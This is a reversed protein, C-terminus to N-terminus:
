VARPVQPVPVLLPRLVPLRLVVVLHPLLDLEQETRSDSLPHYEGTLDKGVSTPDRSLYTFWVPRDPFSHDWVGRRSRDRTTGTTGPDSGLMDVEGGVYGSGVRVGDRLVGSM